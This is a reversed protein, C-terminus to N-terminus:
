RRKFEELNSLPSSEQLLPRVNSPLEESDVKKESDPYEWKFSELREMFAANAVHRKLIISPAGERRHSQGM